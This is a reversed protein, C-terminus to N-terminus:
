IHTLISYQHKEKQSIESQELKIWRRLVLEFTNKKIASYYPHPSSPPSLPTQSPPCMYMGPQNM